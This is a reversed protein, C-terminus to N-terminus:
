RTLEDWDDMRPLGLSHFVCTAIHRQRKVKAVSVPSSCSNSTYSEALNYGGGLPLKMIVDKQLQGAVSRLEKSALSYHHHKM